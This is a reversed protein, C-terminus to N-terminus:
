SEEEVIDGELIKTLNRVKLRVAVIDAKTVPGRLRMLGTILEDMSLKGGMDADLVDFLESTNSTEIEAQELLYHFEENRFWTNFVERSITVGKEQLRAWERNIAALTGPVENFSLVQDFQRQVGASFGRSMSSRGRKIGDKILQTIMRKMKLEVEHTRAGLESHRRMTQATVVNDIFIAMVLNFVGITVFMTILVHFIVFAFGYERHMREALPTGDYAECGETWCRFLTFMSNVVSSYEPEKDKFLLTTGVGILYTLMTLLVIAWFLVRLGSVVGMVILKLEHLLKFRLARLPRALRALRFIKLLLLPGINPDANTPLLLLLVKSSIEAFSIALCFFDFNHWLKQPGCFYKNLGLLRVKVLFEGLYFVFFIVEFIDWIFDLEAGSFDVALGTVIANIIIVVTPVVEMWFISNMTSKKHKVESESVFPANFEFAGVPTSGQLAVIDHSTQEQLCSSRLIKVQTNLKSGLYEYSNTEDMLEKWAHFDIGLSQQNNGQEEARARPSPITGLPDLGNFVRVLDVLLETDVDEGCSSLVKSLDTVGLKGLCSEDLRQFQEELGNMKLSLMSGSSHGASASHYTRHKEEHESRPSIKLDMIQVPQKKEESGDEGNKQSEMLQGPTPSSVGQVIGRAKLSMNEDTLDSVMMRLRHYESAIEELMRDFDDPPGLLPEPPRRGLATMDPKVPLPMDPHLPFPM